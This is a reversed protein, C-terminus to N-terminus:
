EVLQPTEVGFKLSLQELLDNLASIISAWVEESGAPASVSTASSKEGPPTSSSGSVKLTVGKSKGPPTQACDATAQNTILTGEAVGEDVRSRFSVTVKDGCNLKAVYWTLKGPASDNAGSGEISGAVYSTWKPVADVIEIKTLTDGLNKVTISWLIEDGPVLDGGNLDKASVAVRPRGIPPEPAPEPEECFCVVYTTAKVHSPPLAVMMLVVAGLVLALVVPLVIITRLAPVRRRAVRHNIVLNPRNM